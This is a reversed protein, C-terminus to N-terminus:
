LRRRQVPMPVFGASCRPAVIQAPVIQAVAARHEGGSGACRQRFQHRAESMRCRLGRHAILVGGRASVPLYCRQQGLEGVGNQLGGIDIGIVNALAVVDNTPVLTPSGRRITSISTIAGVPRTM